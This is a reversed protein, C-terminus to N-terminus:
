VSCCMSQQVLQCPWAERLAEMALSAQIDAPACLNPIRDKVDQTIFVICGLGDNMHFAKTQRDDLKPNWAAIRELHRDRRTSSGHPYTINWSTDFATFFNSVEAAIKAQQKEIAQSRLQPEQAVGSTAMFALGVMIRLRATKTM